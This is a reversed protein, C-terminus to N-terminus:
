YPSVEITGNIGDLKVKNVFRYKKMANKEIFIPFELKKGMISIHCTRGGEESIVGGNGNKMALFIAEEFEKGLNPLVLISGEKILSFDNKFKDYHMINSECVKKAGVSNSRFKLYKEQIEYKLDLLAELVASYFNKEGHFLDSPYASELTFGMGVWFDTHYPNDGQCKYGSGAVCEWNPINYNDLNDSAYRVELCYFIYPLKPIKLNYIKNEYNLNLDIYQWEENQLSIKNKIDEYLKLSGLIDSAAKDYRSNIDEMRYESDKVYNKIDTKLFEKEITDKLDIVDINLLDKFELAIDLTESLLTNYYVKLQNESKKFLGTYYSNKFIISSLRYDNKDAVLNEIFKNEHEDSNFSVNFIKTLEFITKTNYDYVYLLEQLVEKVYIKNNM